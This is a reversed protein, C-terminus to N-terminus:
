VRVTMGDRALFVGDPLTPEVLAAPPMDHSAHTLYAKQPSIQAIVELAQELSMHAPHPKLRLANVVLVKVGKLMGITPQPVISADTIYALDGIRYGLIPLSGHMVELPIIEITNCDDLAVEFPHGPEIINLDFGPAGPYHDAAFAYPINHRLGNAVDKRCFVPFRGEQCRYCYPRLDDIGGVHDYHIHTVLAAALDPSNQGLLQQRLDPGADILLAPSDSNHRVLVSARLRHDACDTSTCTRCHCGVMPVGTSTGTGLFVLEMNRNNVSDPSCVMKSSSFFEM